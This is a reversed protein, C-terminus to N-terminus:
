SPTGKQTKGEILKYHYYCKILHHWYAPKVGTSAECLIQAHIINDVDCHHKGFICNIMPMLKAVVDKILRANVPLKEKLIMTYQLKTINLEKCIAYQTLKKSQKYSRIFMALLKSNNYIEVELNIANAIAEPDRLRHDALALISIMQSRPFEPLEDTM